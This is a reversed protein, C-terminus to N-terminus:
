AVGLAVKSTIRTPASRGEPQSAFCIALKSLVFAL